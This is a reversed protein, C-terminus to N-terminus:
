IAPDEGEEGRYLQEPLSLRHRDLSGLCQHESTRHRDPSAWRQNDSPRVHTHESREPRHPEVFPAKTM